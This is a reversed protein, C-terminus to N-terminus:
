AAPRTLHRFLAQLPPRTPTLAVLEGIQVVARAVRDPTNPAHEGALAVTLTWPAVGGLPALAGTPDPAPESLTIQVVGPIATIAALLAERDGRCSVVISAPGLHTAALAGPAGLAVIRGADLILVRQCLSEAEPLVHTSLLVTHRAGLAAILQLTQARQRPDLGDTPEDLLLVEPEALLADALGLRQRYGKSLQSVLQRTCDALGVQALVENVRRTRTPATLGKLAARGHLFESVRFGGDLVAEEPLYGLARQAAARQRQADFGAVQVRGAQPHHLGALIRLLTTKGAGNQGLLGVVEGRGVQFTVGDLVPRGRLYWATLGEVDIMVAM